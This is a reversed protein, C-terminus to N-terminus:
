SGPFRPAVFVAPHLYLPDPPDLPSVLEDAPLQAALQAVDTATPYRSEPIVRWQDGSLPTLQDELRDWESTVVRCEGPLRDTLEERPLLSLEVQPELAGTEPQLTYAALWLRQRRADGVVAVSSNGSERMTGFALAAASGIGAIPRRDPLALASAAAIAIRVGSFSGPGLGVAIRDVEEISIEGTELLRPLCAFLNQDRKRAEHWEHAAIVEGDRLLVVSAAPTSQELALIHM